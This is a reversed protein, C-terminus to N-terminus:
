MFPLSRQGFSFFGNCVQRLSSRLKLAPSGIGRLQFGFSVLSYFLKGRLDPCQNGIRRLDVRYFKFFLRFGCLRSKLALARISHLQFSFLLLSYFLKGGSTRASIGSGACIFEM